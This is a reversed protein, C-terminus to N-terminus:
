FLRLSLSLSPSLSIYLSCRAREKRALEEMWTGSGFKNLQPGYNSKWDRDHRGLRHVYKREKVPIGAEAGTAEM